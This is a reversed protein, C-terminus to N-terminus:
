VLVYQSSSLGADMAQGQMVGSVHAPGIIGHTGNGAKRLVLPAPVGYFIVLEDGNGAPEPVYGLRGTNLRAPRMGYASRFVEVMLGKGFVTIDGATAPTGKEDDRSLLRAWLTLDILANRNAAVGLARAINAGHFGKPSARFMLELINDSVPSNVPSDLMDLDWLTTIWQMWWSWFSVIPVGHDRRLWTMTANPVSLELQDYMELISNTVDRRAPTTLAQYDRTLIGTRIAMDNIKSAVAIESFTPGVHYPNNIHGLSIGDMKLRTKNIPRMLDFSMVPSSSGSAKSDLFSDSKIGWDHVWSPLNAVHASENSGTARFSTLSATFGNRLLIITAETFTHPIYGDKTYELSIGERRQGGALGLRAFILDQRHSAQHLPAQEFYATELVERISRNQSCTLRATLCSHFRTDFRPLEKAADTHRLMSRLSSALCLALFVHRYSRTKGNYHFTIDSARGTEQLIWIRSFYPLRSLATMSKLFGVLMEHSKLAGRLAEANSLWRAEAENVFMGDDSAPNAVVFCAQLFANDGPANLIPAAAQLSAVTGIHKFADEVNEITERPEGWNPGLWAIVRTAKTYVESMLGIQWSKEQAVDEDDQNICLADNWITISGYKQRIEKLAAQLSFGIDLTRLDAYDQKRTRWSDKLSSEYALDIKGGAEKPAEGWCYSLAAYSPPAHLKVRELLGSLRGPGAGLRLLRIEFKSERLPKYFKPDYAITM